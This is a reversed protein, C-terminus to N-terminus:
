PPLPPEGVDSTPRVDVEARILAIRRIRQRADLLGELGVPLLFTMCVANALRISSSTSHPQSGTVVVSVLAERAPLRGNLQHSKRKTTIKKGNKPPTRYRIKQSAVDRAVTKRWWSASCTCSAPSRHSTRSCSARRSAWM